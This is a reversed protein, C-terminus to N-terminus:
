ILTYLRCQFSSEQARKGYPAEFADGLRAEAFCM